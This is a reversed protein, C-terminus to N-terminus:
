LGAFDVQSKSCYKLNTRHISKPPQNICPMGELNWSLNVHILIYYDRNVTGEVLKFRTPHM